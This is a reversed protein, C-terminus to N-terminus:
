ANKVDEIKLPGRPPLGLITRDSSSGVCSSDDDCEADSASKWKHTRSSHQRWEFGFESASGRLNTSWTYWKNGFKAEFVQEPHGDVDEAFSDEWKKQVYFPSAYNYTFLIYSVNLPVLFDCTAYCFM